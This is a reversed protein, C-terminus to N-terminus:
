NGGNNKENFTENKEEMKQRVLKRIFMEDREKEELTEEIFKITDRTDPIVVKELANVRRQTKKLETSLRWVINRIEALEGMLNIMKLFRKSTEDMLSNTNLFSYQLNLRPIETEISPLTMGILKVTKKRMKFEYKFNETRKKIEDHGYTSVTKVFSDYASFILKDLDKEIRKVKELYSMLEIVIIERKQELLEFGEKAIANSEKVSILNSKTPPINIRAM